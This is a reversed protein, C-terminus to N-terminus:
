IERNTNKVVQYLKVPVLVLLLIVGLPAVVVYLYMVIISLTSDNEYIRLLLKYDAEKRYSKANKLKITFRQRIPKISVATSMYHPYKTCRSEAFVGVMEEGSSENVISGELYDDCTPPPNVGEIFYYQSVRQKSDILILENKPIELFGGM